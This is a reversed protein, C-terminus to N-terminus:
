FDLESYEGSNTDRLTTSAKTKVRKVHREFEAPKLITQMAKLDPKYTIRLQEATLGQVTFDRDKLEVKEGPGSYTIMGVETRRTERSAEPLNSYFKDIRARMVEELASLADVKAKERKLYIAVEIMAEVPMPEKELAVKLSTLANDGMSISVTPLDLENIKPM